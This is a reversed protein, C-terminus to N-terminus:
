ASPKWCRIRAVPSRLRVEIDDIAAGQPFQSVIDLVVNTEQAPLVKGM